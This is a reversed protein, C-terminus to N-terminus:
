AGGLRRGNWGNPVSSRPRSMKLRNITPPRIEIVMANRAVAMDSTIPTMMPPAEPNM